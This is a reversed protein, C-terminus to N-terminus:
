QRAAEFEISINKAVRPLTGLKGPLRPKLDVTAKQFGEISSLYEEALAPYKGAIKRAIEDSNTQPLLNASFSASLSYEGNKAEIFDFTVTIQDDRLAFGSVVKGKLQEKALSLLDEKKVVVFSAKQSLALKFSSAEDGVKASFDKSGTEVKASEKILYEGEGLTSELEDVAKTKLEDALDNLLKDQDEQSVASIERSSGGSFASENKAELDSTPYNAVTFSENAALNYNAGIDAATVNVKTTGPTSASGSAVIASEDLSFVLGDASKLQTGADLSVEPGSRYVTVEGKAKEGVLKRGTAEATKEGSVSKELLKGPLVRENVDVQGVSTSVKIDEKQELKQPSIYITVTAKPYYWWFLFAAVILVAFFIGGITLLNRGQKVGQGGKRIVRARAGFIGRVKSFINGLRSFAAIPAVEKKFAQESIPQEDTELIQGSMKKIDKGIVFGLDPAKVESVNEIENVERPEKDEDGTECSVKSVGGLELGGALATALVKGEPNVVEVKPTHLFKIKEYSDWSAEILLQEDDELEGEKGDYLILRSPFAEDSELRSLGEVLDDVVSVSRVVTTSGLLNGDRFLSIEILEANIGIVLATLSSGEQSKKLNSIAEALVVFGVPTVSLETCIKKIRELYEEEIQGEKVWYGPVGFVVKSPEKVEEPLSQVSSSLVTDCAELLEDDSSWAVPPSVSVINANADKLSWIGAQAWGPELVLAWYYQEYADKQPLFSKLDM